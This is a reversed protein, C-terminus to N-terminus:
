GVVAKGDRGLLDDVEAFLVMNRADIKVPLEMRMTEGTSMEVRIEAHDMGEYHSFISSLQEM